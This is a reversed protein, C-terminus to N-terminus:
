AEKFVTMGTGQLVCVTGSLYGGQMQNLPSRGPPVWPTSLTDGRDQHAPFGVRMRSSVLDASM